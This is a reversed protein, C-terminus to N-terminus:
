IINILVINKNERKYTRGVQVNGQCKVKPKKEKYQIRAVDSQSIKANETNTKNVLKVTRLYVITLIKIKERLENRKVM